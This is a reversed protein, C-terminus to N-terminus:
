RRDNYGSCQHLACPISYHWLHNCANINGSEMRMKIRISLDMVTTGEQASMKGTWGTAAATTASDTQILYAATGTVVVMQLPFM